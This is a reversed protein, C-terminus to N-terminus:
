GDSGRKRQSYMTEYMCRLIEDLNDGTMVFRAYRVVKEPNTTKRTIIEMTYIGEEEVTIDGSLLVPTEDDISILTHFNSHGDLLGPMKREKHLMRLESIAHWVINDTSQYEYTAYWTGNPKFYDLKCKM